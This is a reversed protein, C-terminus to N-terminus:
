SFASFSINPFILDGLGGKELLPFPPNNMEMKQRGARCRILNM